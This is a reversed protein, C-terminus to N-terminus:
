LETALETKMACIGGTLNYLNTLGRMELRQIALASRIGKECYFIIPHVTNLIQLHNLLEEFPLHIGGIHFNNREQHTRVDVLLLTVKDKQWQILESPTITNM